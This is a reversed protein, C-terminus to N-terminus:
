FPSDQGGGLAENKGEGAGFSDYISSVDDQGEVGGLDGNQAEPLTKSIVEGKEKRESLSPNYLRVAKTPSMGAEKSPIDKYYEVGVDDGKSYESLTDKFYEALNVGYVVSENEFDQLAIRVQARYKGQAPVLWYGLFKGAVRTGLKEKVNKWETVQERASLVSKDFVRSMANTMFKKRQVYVIRYSIFFM